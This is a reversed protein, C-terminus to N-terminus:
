TSHASKEARKGTPTQHPRLAVRKERTRSSRPTRSQRRRDLTKEKLMRILTAASTVRLAPERTEGPIASRPMLLRLGKPKGKGMVRRRAMARKLPPSLPNLLLSLPKRRLLDPPSTAVLVPTEGGPPSPKKLLRGTRSRDKADWFLTPTTLFSSIAGTRSAPNPEIM